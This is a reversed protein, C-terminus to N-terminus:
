IGNLARTLCDLVTAACGDLDRRRNDSFRCTVTVTFRPHIAGDKRPTRAKNDIPRASAVQQEQVLVSNGPTSAKSQRALFEAYEKQTWRM